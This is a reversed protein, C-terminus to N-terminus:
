EGMREVTLVRAALDIQSRRQRTLLAFFATFGLMAGLLVIRMRPDMQPAIPHVGRFWRTAMILIPLDCIALVALVAGIRARSQLDDVSARALCIGALMLWLVLASTLRAEWTWWVGWAEHAWLSGSALTITFCLCGVETSAQSWYDWVLNRSMMYAASCAGMALCAALGCWTVSVHLYLIRQAHGMTAETPAYLFIMLIAGALLSFVLGFVILQKWTNAVSQTIRM